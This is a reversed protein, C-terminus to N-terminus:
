RTTPMATCSVMTQKLEEQHQQPEQRGVKHPNCLSKRFRHAQLAIPAPVHACESHLAWLRMRMSRIGDKAVAARFANKPPHRLALQATLQWLTCLGLLVPPSVPLSQGHLTV